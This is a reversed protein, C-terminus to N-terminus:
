RATANIKIGGRAKQEVTVSCYLPSCAKQVDQLVRAALQECFVGEERYTWLYLKVSKSELCLKDPVYYITITAYDPQGTVPCLSTFEKCTLTVDRVGEPVPFTELQKVAERVQKGLITLDSM